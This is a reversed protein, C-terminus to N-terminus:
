AAPAARDQSPRQRDDLREEMMGRLADISTRIGPWLAGLEEPLGHDSVHRSLRRGVRRCLTGIAEVDKILAADPHPPESQEM